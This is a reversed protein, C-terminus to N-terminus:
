NILLWWKAPSTNQEASSFNTQGTAVQRQRPVCYRKLRLFNNQKANPWAGNVNSRDCSPLMPLKQIKLQAVFTQHYTTCYPWNHLKRHTIIRAKMLCFNFNDRAQQAM